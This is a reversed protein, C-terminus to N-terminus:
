PCVIQYLAEPISKPSFKLWNPEPNDAYDERNKIRYAEDWQVVSLVQYSRDKCNLEVLNTENRTINNIWVRVFGEPRSSISAADYRFVGTTAEAFEKWDSSWARASCVTLGVALLIVGWKPSLSKM